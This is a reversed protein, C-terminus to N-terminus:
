MTSASTRSVSWETLATTVVDVSEMMSRYTAMVDDHMVLVKQTSALDASGWSSFPWEDRVTKRFDADVRGDRHEVLHRVSFAVWVQPWRQKNGAYIISRLDLGTAAKIATRFATLGHRPVVAEVLLDEATLSRDGNVLIEGLDKMTLREDGSYSALIDKFWGVWLATLMRNLFLEFNAKLAVLHIENVMPSLKDALAATDGSGFAATLLQPTVDSGSTGRSVSALAIQHSVRVRTLHQKAKRCYYEIRSLPNNSSM